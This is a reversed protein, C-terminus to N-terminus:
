DDKKEHIYLAFDNHQAILLYFRVLAPSPSMRVIDATTDVGLVMYVIQLALKRGMADCMTWGSRYLPTVSTVTSMLCKKESM